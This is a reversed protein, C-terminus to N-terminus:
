KKTTKILRFGLDNVCDIPGVIDRYLVRCYKARYEYWGGGRLINYIM